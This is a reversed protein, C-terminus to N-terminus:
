GGGGMTRTNADEAEVYHNAAVETLLGLVQVDEGLRAIGSRWERQFRELAAGTKPPEGVSPVSAANGAADRLDAGLAALRGGVDGVSAPSVNIDQM